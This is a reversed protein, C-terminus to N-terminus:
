IAAKLYFISLNYFCGGVHARLNSKGGALYKTIAKNKILINKSINIELDKVQWHFNIPSAKIGPHLPPPRNVFKCCRRLLPHQRHNWHIDKFWQPKLRNTLFRLRSFAFSLSFTGTCPQLIWPLYV